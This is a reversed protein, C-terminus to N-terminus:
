ILFNFKYSGGCSCKKDPLYVVWSHNSKQKDIPAEKGCKDCVPIFTKNKM